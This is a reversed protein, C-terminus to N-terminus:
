KYLNWTTLSVSPGGGGSTFLLMYSTYATSNSSITFLQSATSTVIYGTRTEIINWTATTFGQGNTNNNSGALVWNGGPDAGSILTYSNIVLSYPLTISIWEGKYVTGSITTSTTGTYSYPSSTNYTNSATRTQWYSSTGPGAYATLQKFALYAGSNTQNGGYFHSASAWYTGNMASNTQGTVVWSTTGPESSIVTTITGSAVPIALTPAVPTVSTSAASSPSTGYSNTATVTFTYATGTSLGSVVIPSSSGTATISGPNSTVTYSTVSGSPATFAVSVSTSSAVTGVVATPASPASSNPITSHRIVTKDWFSEFAGFSTFAM